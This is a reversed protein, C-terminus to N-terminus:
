LVLIFRMLHSQFTLGIHNQHLESVVFSFRTKLHLLGWAGNVCFDYCKLRTNRKLLM